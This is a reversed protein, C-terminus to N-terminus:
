VCRSHRRQSVTHKPPCGLGRTWLLGQVMSHICRYRRPRATGLLGNRPDRASPSLLHEISSRVPSLKGGNHSSIRNAQVAILIQLHSPSPLDLDFAPACALKTSADSCVSQHPHHLLPPDSNRPMTYIFLSKTQRGQTPNQM